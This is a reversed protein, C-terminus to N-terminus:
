CGELVQIRVVETSYDISMVTGQQAISFKVTLLFMLM